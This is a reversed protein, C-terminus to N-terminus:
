KGGIKRSSHLQRLLQFIKKCSKPPKNKAREERGNRILTRIRQADLGPNQVLLDTLADDSNILYDRHRELAHMTTTANKSLGKRNNLIDQINAVESPELERMKRGVYQMQRRRAEHQKIRQCEQIANRIDEPIPLKNICDLSEVALEEGLKQLAIMERKIQSKSPSNYEQDFESSQFGCSGRNPNPM